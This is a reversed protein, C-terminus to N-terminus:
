SFFSTLVSTSRAAVLQDSPELSRFTPGWVPMDPTGHAAPNGAGSTVFTKVRESADLPEYGRVQAELVAITAESADEARERRRTIRERLTAEPASV